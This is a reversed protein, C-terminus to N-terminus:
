CGRASGPRPPRRARRGRYRRAGPGGGAAAKEAAGAVLRSRVESLVTRAFGPDARPLGLRYKCEIRRRVADAAQREPLEEAFQLLTVLALRWPAEAPQGKAPFLHAFRGDDFIPGLKDRLSLLLNGHPFALRAVHATDGPVPLPSAPHLCM